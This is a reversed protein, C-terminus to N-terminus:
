ASNTAHKHTVPRRLFVQSLLSAPRESMDRYPGTILDASSVDSTDSRRQIEAILINALAYPPGLAKFSGVEFRRGEDKVRLSRLGFRNALAPFEVEPTAAYGPWTRIM